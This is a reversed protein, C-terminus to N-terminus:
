FNPHFLWFYCIDNQFITYNQYCFVKIVLVREEMTQLAISVQVVSLAEADPM